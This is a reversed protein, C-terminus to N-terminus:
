DEGADERQSKGQLQIQTKVERRILAGNKANLAWRLRTHGWRLM